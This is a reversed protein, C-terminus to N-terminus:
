TLLFRENQGAGEGWNGEGQDIRENGYVLRPDRGPKKM